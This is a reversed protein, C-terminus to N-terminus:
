VADLISHMTENFRSLQAFDAEACSEYVPVRV